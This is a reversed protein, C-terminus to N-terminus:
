MTINTINTQLGEPFIGAHDFNLRQPTWISQGCIPTAEHYQPQWWKLDSGEMNGVFAPKLINKSAPLITAQKHPHQQGFKVQRCRNITVCKERPHRVAVNHLLTVSAMAMVISVNGKLYAVHKRCAIFNHRGCAGTCEYSELRAGKAREGKNPAHLSCVQQSVRPKIAHVPSIAHSRRELESHVHKIQQM